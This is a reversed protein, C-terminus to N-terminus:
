IKIIGAAFSDRLSLAIKYLRNYSGKNKTGMALNIERTDIDGKLWAISLDQFEKEDFSPASKKYKKAKELLTKTM